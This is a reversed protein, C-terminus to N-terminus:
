RKAWVVMCIDNLYLINSLYFLDLGLGLISQSRQNRAYVKVIFYTVIADCSLWYVLMTIPHVCYHEQLHYYLNNHAM